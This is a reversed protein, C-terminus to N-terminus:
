PTAEQENADAQRSEPAAGSPPEDGESQGRELAAHAVIPQARLWDLAQAVSAYPGGTKAIAIRVLGLPSPGAVLQADIETLLTLVAIWSAGEELRLQVLWANEVPAPALDPCAPPAPSAQPPSRLLLALQLAIVLILGAIILPQYWARAPGQTDTNPM